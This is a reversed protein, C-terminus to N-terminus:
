YQLSFISTYVFKLSEPEDFGNEFYGVITAFLPVSIIILGINQLLVSWFSKRKVYFIILGIIITSFAVVTIEFPIYKRIGSEKIPYYLGGYLYMISIWLFSWGYLITMALGLMKIFILEKTKM